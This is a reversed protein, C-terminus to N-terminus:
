AVLVLAAAERLAERVVHLLLGALYHPRDREALFRAGLELAQELLLLLLEDRLEPALVLQRSSVAFAIRAAPMRGAHNDNAPRATRVRLVRDGHHDATAISSASRSATFRPM